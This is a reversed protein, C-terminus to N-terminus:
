HKEVKKENNAWAGHLMKLYGKRKEAVREAGVM